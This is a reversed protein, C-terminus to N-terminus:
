LDKPHNRWQSGTITEVNGNADYNSFETRQNLRQCHGQAPGPQERIRTNAYYELTTIDSVDTRPGNIQTLQGLHQITHTTYTKPTAVANIFVYSIKGPSFTALPTTPLPQSKTQQSDVV